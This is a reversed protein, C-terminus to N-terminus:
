YSLSFISVDPPSGWLLLSAIVWLSAEWGGAVGWWGGRATLGPSSRQEQRGM